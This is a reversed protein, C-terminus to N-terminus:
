RAKARAAMYNLESTPRSPRLSTLASFVWFYAPCSFCVVQRCLAEAREEWLNRAASSSAAVMEEFELERKKLGQLMSVAHEKGLDDAGQLTDVAEQKATERVEGQLRAHMAPPVPM